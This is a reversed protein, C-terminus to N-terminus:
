EGDEEEKTDSNYDFFDDAQMQDLHIMLRGEQRREVVVPEEVMMSTLRQIVEHISMKTMEDKM